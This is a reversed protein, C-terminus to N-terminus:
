RYPSTLPQYEVRADLDVWRDDVWRMPPVRGEYRVVQRSASDFVVRLPDIALRVLFNSPTIRFVTTGAAVGELAIDFGYTQLAQLSILRVPMVKGAALADWHHHVFGHLTPGSVVPSTVAETATRVKGQMQVSFVVQRGDASITASGSFGQQANLAKFHRLHYGPGFEAIEAIRLEGEPTQTLHTATAGNGTAHVRRTYRYLPATGPPSLAYTTGQYILEGATEPTQQWTALQAADPGQLPTPAPAACGTFASVLLAACLVRTLRPTRHLHPYNKLM